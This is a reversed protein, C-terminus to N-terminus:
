RNDVMFSHQLALEATIRTAPNLDLCRYLLDYASDPIQNWCDSDSGSGSDSDCGSGSELGSAAAAGGRSILRGRLSQRRPSVRPPPPPPSTLNNLPGHERERDNSHKTRKPPPTPQTDREGRRSGLQAPKSTSSSSSSSSNSIARLTSCLTKLDM